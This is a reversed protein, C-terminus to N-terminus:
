SKKEKEHHDGGERRRNLEEVDVELKEAILMLTKMKPYKKGEEINAIYGRSLGTMKALKKQTIGRKKRAKAINDGIGM